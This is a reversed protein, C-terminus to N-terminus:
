TADAALGGNSQIANAQVSSQMATTTLDAAAAEEGENGDSESEVESFDVPGGSSDPPEQPTPQDEGSRLASWDLDRAAEEVLQATVQQEGDAWSLAMAKYCLHNISRPIGRSIRTVASVATMDFLTENRGAVLLRRRIYRDVDKDGFRRIRAVVSIRQRLAEMEPRQLTDELEPQGALVVELLNMNTSRLNSLLRVQEIAEYSLAQVEDFILVLKTKRQMLNRLHLQLRNMQTYETEDKAQLGLRRLVDRMLDKRSRYPHTFFATAAKGKLRAALYRMLTTKGMGANAILACVGRGELISLYLASIADRHEQGFYLYRADATVGFPNSQLGFHDLFM